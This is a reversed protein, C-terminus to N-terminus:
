LDADKLPWVQEVSKQDILMNKVMPHEVQIQSLVTVLGPPPLMDAKVNYEQDRITQVTMDPM